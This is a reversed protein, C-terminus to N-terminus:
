ADTPQLSEKSKSYAAYPSGRVRIPLPFVLPPPPAPYAPFVLSFGIHGPQRSRGSTESFKVIAFGKFCKGFIKPFPTGAPLKM